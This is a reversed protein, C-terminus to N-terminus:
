GEKEDKDKFKMGTYFVEGGEVFGAGLYGTEEGGREPNALWGM